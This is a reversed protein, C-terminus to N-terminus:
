QVSGLGPLRRAGLLNWRRMIKTHGLLTIVTTPLAQWKVRDQFLRIWKVVDNEAKRLHTQINAKRRSRPGELPGIGKAKRVSHHTKSFIFCIIFKLLICTEADQCRWYTEWYRSNSSTSIVDMTNLCKFIFILGFQLCCVLEYRVTFLISLRIMLVFSKINQLYM